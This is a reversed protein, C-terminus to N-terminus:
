VLSYTSPLTLKSTSREVLMREVDLESQMEEKIEKQHDFYYGLATHVEALTVSPFLQILEDPSYGRREHWHVIDLVRIRHGDICARGGCIDAKKSIRASSQSVM